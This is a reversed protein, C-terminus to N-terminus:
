KSPLGMVYDFSENILRLLLGENKKMEETVTIYGKMKAGHSMLYSTTFEEFYKEQTDKSFRFGIEANKSLFSFMHGNASTYPSTKGKRDFRDCKTVLMDYFALEEDFKSM